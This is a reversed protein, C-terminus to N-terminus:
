YANQMLPVIGICSSITGALNFENETKMWLLTKWPALFATIGTISKMRMVDKRTIENMRFKSKGFINGKYNQVIKM